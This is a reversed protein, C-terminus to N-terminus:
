ISIQSQKRKQVERYAKIIQKEDKSGLALVYHKWQSKTMGLSEGTLANRLQIKPERRIGKRIHKVVLRLVIVVFNLLLILRKM